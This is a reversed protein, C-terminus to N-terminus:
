RKRCLDKRTPKFAVYLLQNSQRETLEIEVAHNKPQQLRRQKERLRKLKQRRVAKKRETARRQLIQERQTAQRRLNDQVIWQMRRRSLESNDYM